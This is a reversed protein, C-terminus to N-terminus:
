FSHHPQYCGNRCFLYESIRETGLRHTPLIGSGGAHHVYSQCSIFPLGNDISFISKNELKSPLWEDDSDLFAFYEGQAQEIGVNRAAGGGRNSQLTIIRFREDSLGTTISQLM